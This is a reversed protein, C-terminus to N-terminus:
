QFAYAKVHLIRPKVRIMGDGKGARVDQWTQEYRVNNLGAAGRLFIVAMSEWGFVGGVEGELFFGLFFGLM